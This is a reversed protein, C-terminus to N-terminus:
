PHLLSCRAHVAAYPHIRLRNSREFSAWEVPRHPFRFLTNLDGAFLYVHICDGADTVPLRIRPNVINAAPWDRRVYRALIFAQDNSYVIGGDLHLELDEEFTRACPELDYVRRAQDIPRM